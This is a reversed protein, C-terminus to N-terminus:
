NTHNSGLNHRFAERDPFEAVLEQYLTRALLHSEEAQKDEGLRHRIRAVQLHGEARIMREDIENGPLAAFEEYLQQIQRLFRHDDDTLIPQRAMQEEVVEDVLTRLAQMSLNRAREKIELARTEAQLAAVKKDRERGILVNSVSVG